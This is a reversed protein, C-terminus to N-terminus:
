EPTKTPLGLLDELKTLRATLLNLTVFHVYLLVFYGIYPILTFLAIRARKADLKSLIYYYSFGLLGQWLVSIILSPILQIWAASDM